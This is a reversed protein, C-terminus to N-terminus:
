SHQTPVSLNQLWANIDVLEEQCVEHAMPYDHWEVNYHQQQLYDRSLQGAFVPLVDDYTGHALFIPIDKNTAFTTQNINFHLPLYCSLGLVGALKHETSLATYLAMAGGQSFGALLIQASPIGKDIEQEILANIMNQAERIGAEDQKELSTLSYMDFWARMVMGSNITVPRMPAHPFIFRTNQAGSQQLQPAIPAFDHGDAGLGHMWIISRTATSKPEIIVTELSNITSM